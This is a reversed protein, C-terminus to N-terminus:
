NTQDDKRNAHGDKTPKKSCKISKCFETFCLCFVENTIKNPEGFECKRNERYNM